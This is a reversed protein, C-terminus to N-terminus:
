ATVTNVGVRRKFAIPLVNQSNVGSIGLTTTAQGRIYRGWSNLDMFTAGNQDKCPVLFEKNLYAKGNWNMKIAAGQDLEKTFDSPPPGVDIIDYNPGGILFAWEIPSNIVKSYLPNPKTRGFDERNPDEETLEPVPLSPLFDADLQMRMPYRELKSRIRGFLDGKFAGSVIDMNLPRNEKLWPDNVFNNWSEGSQVLCFKENLPNSDATPMGTGDYPTGGVEQEFANLAKWLEQFSLYGTEVGSLKSTVEGQIWAASKATTLAADGDGTPGDILGVGCVYVYPAHNFAHTRYYVDEFITIQRNVNAMTKDIHKMFDQFEPLFSFHPTVFDQWRLKADVTRERYNIVDTTPITKLLQPFATQRMVPTPESAVRRMTDGMNPKWPIKGFLKAWTTWYKRYDAEAQMFYFPLKNYLDLQQETWAGCVNQDIAPIQM